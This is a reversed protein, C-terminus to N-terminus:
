GKDMLRYFEDDSLLSLDPAGEGKIPTYAYGQHPSAEEFLYPNEAQVAQLQEELGLLKGDKLHMNKTDLLARVAKINRAKAGMLAAELAFDFRVAKLEARGQEELEQAKSQWKQAEQQLGEIDLGAFGELRANAEALSAQLDELHAKQKESAAKHKELDRGHEAMIKEIVEDSLELGKLFDRKM